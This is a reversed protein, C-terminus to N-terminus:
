NAMSVYEADDPLMSHDGYYSLYMLVHLSRHFTTLLHYWLYLAIIM